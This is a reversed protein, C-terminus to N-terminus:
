GESVLAAVLEDVRIPKSVYDDMGAELCIERDGQMANATMAIIRPLAVPLDAVQSADVSKNPETRITAESDKKEKAAVEDVVAPNTKQILGKFWKLAIAVKRQQLPPFPRHTRASHELMAEFDNETMMSFDEITRADFYTLLAQTNENIRMSRCLFEMDEDLALTAVLNYHDYKGVAPSSAFTAPLPSLIYTHDLAQQTTESEEKAFCAKAALTPINM